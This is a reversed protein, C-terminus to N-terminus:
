PPMLSAVAIGNGVKKRRFNGRRSSSVLVAPENIINQRGNGGLIMAELGKDSCVGWEAVEGKDM